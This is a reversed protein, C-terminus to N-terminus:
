IEEAAPAPVARRRAKGDAGLVDLCERLGESGARSCLKRLVVERRDPRLPAMKGFVADPAGAQEDYRIALFSHCNTVQRVEVVEVDAVRVGPFRESLLGHLVANYEVVILEEPKVGSDLLAQTVVGTGGGLEIVPGMTRPVARAMAEALDRSSVTFNGISLPHRLWLKFFAHSDSPM